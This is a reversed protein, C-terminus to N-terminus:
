AWLIAGLIRAPGRPRHTAAYAAAIGPMELTSCHPLSEFLPPSLTTHSAGLGVVRLLDLQFLEYFRDAKKVSPPAQPLLLM